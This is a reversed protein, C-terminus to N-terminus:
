KGFSKSRIQGFDVLWSTKFAAISNNDNVKAYSFQLFEQYNSSIKLVFTAPGKKLKRRSLKALAAIVSGQYIM